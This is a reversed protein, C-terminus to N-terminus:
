RAGHRGGGTRADRWAAAYPLAIWVGMTLTLASFFGAAPQLAGCWAVTGLALLALSAARWGRARALPRRLLRQRPAACYFGTAGAVTCALAFAATSIVM